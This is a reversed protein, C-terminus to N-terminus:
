YPRPVPQVYASGYGATAATNWDEFTYVRRVPRIWAQVPQVRPAYWAQGYAPYAAVGYQYSVPAQRAVRVRPRGWASADSTAVLSITAAVLAPLWFRFRM